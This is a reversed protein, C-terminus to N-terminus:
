IISNKERKDHTYSILMLRFLVFSIIDKEKKNTEKNVQKNIM